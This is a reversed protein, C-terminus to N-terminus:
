FIFKIKNIELNLGTTNPKRGISILVVDCDFEKKNKGSTFIKISNKKTTPQTKQLIKYIAKYINFAM